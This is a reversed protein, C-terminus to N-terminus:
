MSDWLALPTQVRPHVVLRGCPIQAGQNEKTFFPQTEESVGMEHKSSLCGFKQHDFSGLQQPKSV